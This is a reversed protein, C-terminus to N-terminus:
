FRFGKRKAQEVVTRRVAEDLAKDGSVGQRKMEQQIYAERKVSLERIQNQITTREAAKKRVYAKREALTLKRMEEPLDSDKLKSWDFDKEKCADVLDWLRNNYQASSKALARDAASAAGGVQRANADQAIQNQQRVQGNIGFALYTRNVKGSLADLQKDYPTSVAVTGGTEAIALYQGDALRAIERWTEEGGASGCYIANVTIGKQIAAPATKAYDFLEPGQRATENGLVYIVKLHKSGEAWQMESTSRHIALGVYESGWGEDKFTMLNKYVEDLDESLPFTRFPGEGNGYGILGIRLVPTPKAKAIENVISWVKRKAADILPGMSGSCDVAFVMEIHPKTAAAPAPALAIALAALLGSGALLLPLPKM